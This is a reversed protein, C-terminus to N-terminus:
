SIYHITFGRKYFYEADQRGLFKKDLDSVLDGLDKELSADLKRGRMKQLEEIFQYNAESCLNYASTYQYELEDFLDSEEDFEEECKEVYLDEVNEKIFTTKLKFKRM